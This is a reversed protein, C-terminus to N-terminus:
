QIAALAERILKIAREAGFFSQDELRATSDLEYFDLDYALERIVDVTDPALGDSWESSNWVVRQFEFITGM